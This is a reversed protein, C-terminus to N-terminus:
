KPVKRGLKWPSDRKTISWLDTVPIIQFQEQIWKQTTSVFTSIPLWLHNNYEVVFVKILIPREVYVLWVPADESEAHFWTYGSPHETTNKRHELICIHVGLFRHFLFFDFDTIPYDGRELSQQVDTWLNMSRSVANTALHRWIIKMLSLANIGNNSEKTIEQKLKDAYPHQKNKPYQTQIVDLFAFVDEVTVLELHERYWRKWEDITMKWDQPPYLLRGRKTENPKWISWADTETEMSIDEASGRFALFFQDSTKNATRMHYGKGFLEEWHNPLPSVNPIFANLSETRNEFHVRYRELNKSNLNPQSREYTKLQHFRSLIKSKPRFEQKLMEYTASADGKFLIEHNKANIKNRDIFDEVHNYLIEERKMPNYILEKMLRHLFQDQVTHKTRKETINPIWLQCTKKQKNYICHDSQHCLKQTNKSNSNSNSSVINHCLERINPIEYTNLDFQERIEQNKSLYPELLKNLKTSLITEKNEFNPDKLITIFEKRIETNDALLQGVTFRLRQYAEELYKFQTISRIRENSNTSGLILVQNVQQDMFSFTMPLRKGIPVDVVTIMQVPIVFENTLQIGQIQKQNFSVSMRAPEYGEEDLLKAFNQYSKLTESYSHIPIETQHSLKLSPITRGPQSPILFGDPSILGATQSMSNRWYTWNLIQKPDIKKVLSQLTLKKRRTTTIPTNPSFNKRIRDWNVPLQSSCSTNMQKMLRKVTLHEPSFLPNVFFQGNQNKLHVIPEYVSSDLNTYLFISQREAHYLDVFDDGFPCLVQDGRIIFVNVGKETLISPRQILDWLLSLLIQETPHTMFDKWNEYSAHTIREYFQKTKLSKFETPIPEPLFYRVMQGKALTSFDDESIKTIIQELWEQFTNVKKPAIAQSIWEPKNPHQILQSIYYIAELLPQKETLLIGRRVICEEGFKLYGPKCEMQFLTQLSNTLLGFRDGPLPMKERGLLYDKGYEAENSQNNNKGLCQQFKRHHKKTINQSDITYCCPMCLKKPHKRPDAFGPYVHKENDDSLLRLWTERNLRKSCSPCLATRCIEVAETESKRAIKRLQIRDKILSYPIPIEEYPCWAEPCIYWFQRTPESGYQVSYTFSNREVRPDKEPDYHLIIPQYPKQCAQSYSHKMGTGTKTFSFLAPDHEQLRRLTYKDDLCIDKCTQRILDAEEGVCFQDLKMDKGLLEPQIIGPQAPIYGSNKDPEMIQMGTQIIQQERDLAESEAIVQRLFNASFDDTGFNMENTPQQYLSSQSDIHEEEDPKDKIYLNFIRKFSSDMKQNTIFQTWLRFVISMARQGLWGNRIGHLQIRNPSFRIVFGTQRLLGSPRSGIFSFGYLNNWENYIDLAAEEKIPFQNVLNHIITKVIENRELTPMELITEQIVVFQDKLDSYNPIRTYRYILENEKRKIQTSVERATQRLDPIMLSRYYSIFKKFSEKYDNSIWPQKATLLLQLSILHINDGWIFNNTNPDFSYEAISLLNASSTHHRNIYSSMKKSEMYIWKLQQQIISHVEKPSLGGAKKGQFQLDIIYQGDSKFHITAYRPGDTGEYIFRKVTLIGIPIRSERYRSDVSQLIGIWQVATKFLIKRQHILSKLFKYMPYSDPDNYRKFVTTENLEIMHWFKFLDINNEDLKPPNVVFEIKEILCSSEYLTHIAPPVKQIQKFLENDYEVYHQIQKYEDKSTNQQHTAFRWYKQFYGFQFEETNKMGMSQVIEYADMFLHIYLVPNQISSEQLIRDREDNYDIDTRGKGASTLFNKKDPSPKKNPGEYSVHNIYNTYYGGLRIIQTKIPRIWLEIHDTHPLSNTSGLGIAFIIKRRIQNITDDLRIRAPIWHYISGLEFNWFSEPNQPFQNKYKLRDKDSKPFSETWNKSASVFEAGSPEGLFDYIQNPKGYQVRIVRFYPDQEPDIFYRGDM